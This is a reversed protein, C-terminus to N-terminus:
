KGKGIVDRLLPFEQNSTLAEVLAHSPALFLITKGLLTPARSLTGIVKGTWRSIFPTGSQSQIKIEHDLEVASYAETAEVVKGTVLRYGLKAQTNKDPFWIREGVNPQKRSDLELVSGDPVKGEAPMLLYDSRLDLQPQSIGTIGEKGPPGWSKTFKLIPESTVVDLWRAELLAPGKRNLFHGSTVAVVKGDPTKALFGTGQYTPNADQWIFMPQFLIPQKPPDVPRTDTTAGQARDSDVAARTGSSAKQGCGSSMLCALLGGALLGVFRM